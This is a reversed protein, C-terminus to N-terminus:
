RPLAIVPPPSSDGSSYFSLQRSRLPASCDCSSARVLANPPPTNGIRASRYVVIGEDRSQVLCPLQLSMVVLLKLPQRLGVLFETAFCRSFLTCPRLCSHLLAIPCGIVGGGPPKNPLWWEQSNWRLSLVLQNKEREVCDGLAM